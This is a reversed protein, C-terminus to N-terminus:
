CMGDTGLSINLYNLHDNISICNLPSCSNSCLDDEYYYNDNCKVYNINNEDYWIENPIHLYHLFEEPLHPVM